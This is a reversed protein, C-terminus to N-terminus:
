KRKLKSFYHLGSAFISYGLLTRLIFHVYQNAFCKSNIVVASIFHTISYLGLVILYRKKM